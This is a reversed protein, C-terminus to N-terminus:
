LSRRRIAELRAMLAPDETKLAPALADALADLAVNAAGDIRDLLLACLRSYEDASLYDSAYPEIVDLGVGLLCEAVRGHASVARLREELTGAGTMTTM